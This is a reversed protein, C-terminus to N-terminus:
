RRRRILRTLLRTPGQLDASLPVRKRSTPRAASPIVAGGRAGFPPPAALPTGASESRGTLAWKGLAFLCSLNPTSTPTENAPRTRLPATRRTCPHRCFGEAPARTPLLRLRLFPAPENKKKEWFSTSVRVGGAPPVRSSTVSRRGLSPGPLACAGSVGEATVEIPPQGATGANRDKAPAPKLGQVTAPTVLTQEHHLREQPDAPCGSPQSGAPCGPVVSTIPTPWLFQATGEARM